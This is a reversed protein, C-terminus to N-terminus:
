RAATFDIVTPKVLRLYDSAAVTMTERHTGANFTLRLQESLSRDLYTPIQYINGFPPMAGVECDPFVSAFEEERALRVKKARLATRLRVLDVRAPAPLVLMAQQGDVDAIVVKAVQRGSVHEAAAVEQATYAEGHPTVEWRVGQERLYTELRERARM